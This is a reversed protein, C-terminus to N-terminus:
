VTAEECTDRNDKNLCPKSTLSWTKNLRSYMLKLYTYVLM